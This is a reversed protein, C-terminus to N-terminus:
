SSLKKDYSNIPRIFVAQGKQGLETKLSEAFPDGTTLKFTALDSTYFEWNHAAERILAKEFKSFRPDVAVVELVKSPRPPERDIISVPPAPNDPQLAPGPTLVQIAAFIGVIFLLWKTINRLKM